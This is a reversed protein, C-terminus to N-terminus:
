NLSCNGKYIENKIKDIPQNMEIEMLINPEKKKLIPEDFIM